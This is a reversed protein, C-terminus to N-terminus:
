LDHQIEGLKEGCRVCFFAVPHFVPAGCKGCVPRFARGCYPCYTDEAYGMAQCATCFKLPADCSGHQNGPSIDHSDSNM